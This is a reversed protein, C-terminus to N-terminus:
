PELANRTIRAAGDRWVVIFWIYVFFFSPLYELFQNIIPKKLFFRSVYSKGTIYTFDTFNM